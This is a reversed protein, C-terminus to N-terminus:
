VSSCSVGFKNTVFAPEMLNFGSGQRKDEEEREKRKEARQREVEEFRELTMGRCQKEEQAQRDRQRQFSEANERLTIEDTSARHPVM